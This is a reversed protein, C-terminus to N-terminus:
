LLSLKGEDPKVTTSSPGLIVRYDFLQLCFKFDKKLPLFGNDEYFSLM